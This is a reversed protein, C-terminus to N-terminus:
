SAKKIAMYVIDGNGWGFNVTWGTGTPRYAAYTDHTEADSNNPAIDESDSSTWGRVSDIIGWNNSGDVRKTMLLGPEWGLNITANGSVDNEAMGCQIINGGGTDHAFLYAVYPVGNANVDASTGLSFVSSTPTTSNWYTGSATPTGDSNMALASGSGVSRHYVTAAAGGLSRVIIMGPAIDLAHAITRNSGNGTYTVTDFFRSRERFSFAVHTDTNGNYGSATGLSFGSAGFATVGQAETAEAGTGDTTVSKTAGRVTDVLRHSGSVNRTKIWVMGGAALNIGSSITRAAGNGTYTSVAFLNATALAVEAAAARAHGYGSAASGGVLSLMPAAVIASPLLKPM